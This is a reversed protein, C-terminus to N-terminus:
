ENDIDNYTFNYTIKRKIRDFVRNKTNEITQVKVGLAQATETLTYGMGYLYNLILIQRNTFKLNKIRKMVEKNYRTKRETLEINDSDTKDYLETSFLKDLLEQPMLVEISKPNIKNISTKLPKKSTNKVFKFKSLDRSM